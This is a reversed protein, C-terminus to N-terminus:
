DRDDIHHQNSGPETAIKNPQIAQQWESKLALVKSLNMTRMDKNMVDVSHMHLLGSFFHGM